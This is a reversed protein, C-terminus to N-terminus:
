PVRVVGRAGRQGESSPLLRASRPTEALADAPGPRVPAPFSHLAVRLVDSMTVVSVPVGCSDTVYVRHIRHEEMLDLVDLLTAQATCCVPHAPRPCGQGGGAVAAARSRLFRDVPLSLAPLDEETFGRLDSASFNGVLMGTMRDVVAVAAVDKARMLLLAALAPAASEVAWVHTAALRLVDLPARMVGLSRRHGLLFRVVDSQSVIREVPGDGASVAVRRARKARAPAAFAEALVLQLPAGPAYRPYLHARARFEPAIFPGVPRSFEWAQPKLIFEAPLDPPPGSPDLRLQLQRLCADTVTTLLHTVDVFGLLRGAEVVPCSLCRREALIDFVLSIPTHAAVIVPAAASPMGELVDGLTLRLLEPSRDEATVARPMPRGDAPVLSGKRERDPGHRLDVVSGRHSSHDSGRRRASAQPPLGRASMAPKPTGGAPAEAGIAALPLATAPGGGFWPHQLAASASPRLKPDLTLLLSVFDKAAPSIRDWTTGAPFSFERNRIKQYMQSTSKGFFPPWGCLLIFTLVGLSWLDCKEDYYGGGTQHVAIVEPAMYDPSGCHLDFRANGPEFTAAVGFDILTVQTLGQPDGEACADKLMINEAKLDRHCVGAAHMAALAGLLRRTVERAADEPYCELQVIKEFLEGGRLVEMVLVVQSGIEFSEYLRVVSPHEVRALCEMESKLFRLGRPGAAALKTRDVVKVACERGTERHTAAYVTAFGGRGLMRGLVYDKALM